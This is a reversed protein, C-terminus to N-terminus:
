ILRFIRSSPDFSVQEAKKTLLFSILLSSNDVASLNRVTPFNRLYRRVLRDSSFPEGAPTPSSAFWRISRWPQRLIAAGSSSQKAMTSLANENDHERARFEQYKLRSARSHGLASRKPCRELSMWQNGVGTSPGARRVDSVASWFPAL